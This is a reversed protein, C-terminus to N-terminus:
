AGALQAERALQQPMDSAVHLAVQKALEERQFNGEEFLLDSPDLRRRQAVFTPFSALDSM